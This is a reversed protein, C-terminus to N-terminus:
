KLLLISVFAVTLGLLCRLTIRERFFLRSMLASFILGGAQYIPYLQAPPLYNNALTKFYSNVFLCVSMIVVTVVTDHLMKKADFASKDGPFLLMVGLFVASILYSFLSLTSISASSYHTFLKLSFDYLGSSLGCLVLLLMAHATLRGKLRTSYSAMIMVAVILLAVAIMQRPLVPDRFVFFSCILTVVVGFMQTVSILMFAGHKVCLLWTTLFVSLTIGTGSDAFGLSQDRKNRKVAVDFKLSLDRRFIDAFDFDTGGDPHFQGGVRELFVTSEVPHDSVNGFISQFFLFRSIGDFVVPRADCNGALQGPNFLIETQNGAHFHLTLDFAVAAPYNFIDEVWQYFSQIFRSFLRLVIGPNM